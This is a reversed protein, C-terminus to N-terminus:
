VKWHWFCHPQLEFTSSPLSILAETKDQTQATPISTATGNGGSPWSREGDKWPLSPPKMTLSELLAPFYVTDTNALDVPHTNSNQPGPSLSCPCGDLLEKIFHKEWKRQGKFEFRMESWKKPGKPGQEWTASKADVEEPFRLPHYAKINHTGCRLALIVQSLLVKEASDRLENVVMLMVRSTLVLPVLSSPYSLYWSFSNLVLHNPSVNLRM